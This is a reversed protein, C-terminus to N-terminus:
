RSLHSDMSEMHGRDADTRDASPVQDIRRTEAKDALQAMTQANGTTVEHKVADVKSNTKRAEFYALVRNLALAAFTFGGSILALQVTDSM